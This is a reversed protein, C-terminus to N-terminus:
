RGPWLLTRYFEGPVAGTPQQTVWSVLKRHCAACAILVCQASAGDRVEFYDRRHRQCFLCLPPISQAHSTVELIRWPSDPPLVVRNASPPLHRPAPAGPACQLAWDLVPAYATERYPWLRLTFQQGNSHQYVHTEADGAGGGGTCTATSETVNLQALVAEVGVLAVPRLTQPDRPPLPGRRVPMLTHHPATRTLVRRGLRDPATFWAEDWQGDYQSAFLCLADVRLTQLINLQALTFM